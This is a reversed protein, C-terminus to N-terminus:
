KDKENKDKNEDPAKLVDLKIVRPREEFVWEIKVRSGVKVKDIGELIKKDFGGGAAPAGGVWKPVYRRAKEEGDARVELSNKEKKVVVGSFLWPIPVRSFPTSAMCRTLPADPPTPPTANSESPPATLRTGAEAVANTCRLARNPACYVVPKPADATGNM